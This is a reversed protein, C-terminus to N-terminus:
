RDTHRHCQTDARAPRTFVLNRIADELSSTPQYINGLTIAASEGIVKGNGQTVANTIQDSVQTASM